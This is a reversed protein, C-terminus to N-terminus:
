SQGRGFDFQNEYRNPNNDWRLKADLEEGSALDEPLLNELVAFYPYKAVM